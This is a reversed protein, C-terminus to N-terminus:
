RAANGCQCAYPDGDQNNTHRGRQKFLAQLRAVNTNRTAVIRNLSITEGGLTGGPRSKQTSTM